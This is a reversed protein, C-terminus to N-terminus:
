RGQERERTRKVRNADSERHSQKGGEHLSEREMCAARWKSIWIAFDLPLGGESRLRAIECITGGERKRAKAQLWPVRTEKMKVRSVEHFHLVKSICDSFDGNERQLNRSDTRRTQNADKRITRNRRRRHGAPLIINYNNRFCRRMASWCNSCSIQCVGTRM